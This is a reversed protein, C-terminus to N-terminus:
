PALHGPSRQWRSATGDPTTRLGPRLETTGRPHFVPAKEQELGALSEGLIPCLSPDQRIRGLSPHAQWAKVLLSSRSGAEHTFIGEAAPLM